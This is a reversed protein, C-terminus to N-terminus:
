WSVEVTTENPGDAVTRVTYGIYRLHNHAARTECEKIPTRPRDVESERVSSRGAAAAKEIAKCWCRVVIDAKWLDPTLAGATLNRADAASIIERGGARCCRDCLGDLGLADKPGSRHCRGCEGSIQVGM